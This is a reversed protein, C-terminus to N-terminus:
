APPVWCLCWLQLAAAGIEVNSFEVDAAERNLKLLLSPFCSGALPLNHSEFFDRNYVSCGGQQTKAAYAVTVAPGRGSSRQM